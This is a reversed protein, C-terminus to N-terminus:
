GNDPSPAPVAAQVRKRWVRLSRSLVFLLLMTTPVSAFAWAYARQPDIDWFRIAVTRDARDLPDMTMLTSGDESLCAFDKGRNVVHLLERGTSSKLAIACHVKAGFLEPCLPELWKDWFYEARERVGTAAFHRGHAPLGSFDGPRFDRPAVANKPKGSRADLIEVPEPGGSRHLLNGTDGLFRTYGSGPRNWLVKGTSADFM